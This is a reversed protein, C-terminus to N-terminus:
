NSTAKAHPWAIHINSWRRDRQLTTRLIGVYDYEVARGNLQWHAGKCSISTVYIADPKGLPIEDLAVIAEAVGVTSGTCTAYTVLIKSSM